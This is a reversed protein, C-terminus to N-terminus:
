NMNKERSKGQLRFDTWTVSIRKTLSKNKPKQFVDVGEIEPVYYVERTLIRM